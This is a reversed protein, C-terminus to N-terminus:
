FNCYDLYFYHFYDILVLFYLDNKIINNGNNSHHGGKCIINIDNRHIGRNLLWDGFINESRGYCNATDFINIKKNFFVDDLLEFPNNSNTIRLIGYIM